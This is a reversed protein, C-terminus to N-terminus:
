TAPLKGGIGGIEENMLCNAKYGPQIQLISPLICSFLRAIHRCTVKPSPVCFSSVERNHKLKVRFKMWKGINMGMNLLLIILDEVVFFPMSGVIELDPM